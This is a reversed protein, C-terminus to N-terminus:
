ISGDGVVFVDNVYPEQLAKRENPWEYLEEKTQGLLTHSDMVEIIKFASVNFNRNRNSADVVRHRDDRREAESRLNEIERKLLAWIAKDSSALNISIPGLTAKRHAAVALYYDTKRTFAPWDADEALEEVRASIEEVRWTQLLSHMEGADHHEQMTEFVNAPFAARRHKPVLYNGTEKFDEDLCALLSHWWWLKNECFKLDIKGVPFDFAKRIRREPIACPEKWDSKKRPDTKRPM